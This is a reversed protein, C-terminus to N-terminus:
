RKLDACTMIRIRIRVPVCLKMEINIRIRSEPDPDHGKKYTSHKKKNLKELNKGTKQKIIAIFQHMM